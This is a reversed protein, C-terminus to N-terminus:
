GGRTSAIGSVSSCRGARNGGTLGVGRLVPAHKRFVLGFVTVLDVVLLCFFVLFLIGLWNMVFMELPRALPVFGQDEILRQLFYGAWLIAAM